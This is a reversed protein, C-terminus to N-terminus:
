EDDGDEDDSASDVEVPEAEAAEGADETETEPEPEEVAVDAPPAVPMQVEAPISEMGAEAVEDTAAEATHKVMNGM